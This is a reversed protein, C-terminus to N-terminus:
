FIKTIHGMVSLVSQRHLECGPKQPLARSISKSIDQAVQGTDYIKNLLTVIKVIGYDGLTELLEVSVSEKGTAKYMIVVNYYLYFM